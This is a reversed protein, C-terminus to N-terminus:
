CSPGPPAAAWTLRRGSSGTSGLQRGRTQKPSSACGGPGRSVRRRRGPPTPVLAPPAGATSARTSHARIAPVPPPHKSEGPRQPSVSHCCLSWVPSAICGRRRRPSASTSRAANFHGIWLRHSGAQRRSGEWLPAYPNTLGDWNRTPIRLKWGLSDLSQNKKQYQCRACATVLNAPDSRDGGRSVPTLHDVSTSLDWYIRHTVSRKWNPHFPVAEPLRASILRLVGLFITRRGCYVCIFSDRLYIGAITRHPPSATMTGNAPLYPPAPLVPMRVIPDSDITEGAVPALAREAREDDGAILARAAEAFRDVVDDVGSETMQPTDSLTSSVTAQGRRLRTARQQKARSSQSM